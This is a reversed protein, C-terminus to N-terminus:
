TSTRDATRQDSRRNTANASLSAQVNLTFSPATLGRFTMYNGAPVANLGAAAINDIVGGVVPDTTTQGETFTGTFNVGADRGWQSVGNVEYRGVRGATGNDGDYYVIVNYGAGTLSAPLGSVTMTTISTDNTDLYGLMMKHNASPAETIGTDWDNPSMGWSITAGSATGTSFNLAQNTGTVGLFSNWNGQPVVGAIDTALMQTQDPGTGNGGFWDIGIGQANAAGCFTLAAVLAITARQFSLM